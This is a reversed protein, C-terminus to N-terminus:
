RASWDLRFPDGDIRGRMTVRAVQGGQDMYIVASGRTDRDRGASTLEAEVVGNTVRTAQGGFVLRQFERGEFEVVVRGDRNLSVLVDRVAMDPGNRRNLFGRGDGRYRFEGGMRGTWPGASRREEERRNGYGGGADGRWEIDFTYGERGGQPDEIRIIAPGGRGPERVLEQRGRGDIGTFRFEAPNPPMPQSCIFRRWEARQGSLTRLEATDGRIVVEAAGDVVV